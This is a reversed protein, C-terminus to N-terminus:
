VAFQNEFEKDEEGGIFWQRETVRHYAEDLESQITNHIKSLDLYPVEM